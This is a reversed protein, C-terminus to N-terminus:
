INTQTGFLDSLTGIEQMWKIANYNNAVNKSYHILFGNRWTDSWNSAKNHYYAEKSSWINVVCREPYAEDFHKVIKILNSKSIKGSYLVDAVWNYYRKKKDPEKYSLYEIEKLEPRIPEPSDCALGIFLLLTLHKIM